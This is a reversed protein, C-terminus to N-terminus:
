NSSNPFSWSNICCLSGQFLICLIANLCTHTFIISSAHLKLCATFMIKCNMSNFDMVLVSTNTMSALYCLIKNIELWSFFIWATPFYTISGQELLLKSKRKPLKLLLWSLHSCYPSIHTALYNKSLIQLTLLRKLKRPSSPNGINSCCFFRGKLSWTKAGKKDWSLFKGVMFYSGFAWAHWSGLHCPVILFIISHHKCNQWLETIGKSLVHWVPGPPYIVMGVLIM